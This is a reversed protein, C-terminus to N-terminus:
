RSCPASSCEHCNAHEMIILFMREVTYQPIAMSVQSSKFHPRIYNVDGIQQTVHHRPRNEGKLSDNIRFLAFYNSFQPFGSLINNSNPPEFRAGMMHKLPSWPRAVEALMSGVEAFVEQM